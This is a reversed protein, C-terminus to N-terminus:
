KSLYYDRKVQFTQELDFTVFVSYDEVIMEMSGTKENMLLSNYSKNDIYKQRLDFLPSFGMEGNCGEVGAGNIPCGETMCSPNTLRMSRGYSALGLAMKDGTVGQDMMYEVTMEIYEMDTNSGAEPNWHGNIDYAMLNFWDVSKVMSRLDFGENLKEPNVPTAVTLLLTIGKEAKVQNFARRVEQLLLAYKVFDEPVGERTVPYEWDFDIGNFGYQICFEVVSQAFRQRKEPTSSVMTFRKQDFTWGGVAILTQLGANDPHKKLNNFAKYQNIEDLIGNYSDLVGTLSIGAFSYVLHTYGFAKVNIDSPRLPNCDPQRYMAWSQYYGVNVIDTTSSPCHSPSQKGPYILSTTTTAEISSTSQYTSTTAAYDYTTTTSTGAEITMSPCSSLDAYCDEGSPCRDNSGDPCPQKCSNNADGWSSGCYNQVTILQRRSNKSSTTIISKSGGKKNNTHHHYDHEDSGGGRITAAEVGFQSSTAFLLLWPLLPGLHILVRWYMSNNTQTQRM